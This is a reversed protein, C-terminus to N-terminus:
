AAKKIAPLLPKNKAGALVELEELIEMIDNNPNNLNQRIENTLILLALHAINAQNLNTAARFEERIKTTKNFFITPFRPNKLLQGLAQDLSQVWFTVQTNLDINQAGPEARVDARGKETALTYTGRGVMAVGVARACIVAGTTAIMSPAWAPATMIGIGTGILGLGSLIKATNMPM